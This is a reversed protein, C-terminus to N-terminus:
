VNVEVTELALLQATDKYSVSRSDRKNAHIFSFSFVLVNLPTFPLLNFPLCVNWNTLRVNM